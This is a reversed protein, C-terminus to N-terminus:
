PQSSSLRMGMTAPGQTLGGKQRVLHPPLTHGIGCTRTSELEKGAFLGRFDNALCKLFPALPQPSSSTLLITLQM